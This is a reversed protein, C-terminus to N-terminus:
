RLGREPQPQLARDLAAILGERKRRIAAEQASLAQIEAILDLPARSGPSEDKKGLNFDLTRIGKGAGLNTLRQPKANEKQASRSRAVGVAM